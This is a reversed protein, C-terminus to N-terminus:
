ALTMELGCHDVLGVVETGTNWYYGLANSSYERGPGKPSIVRTLLLSM